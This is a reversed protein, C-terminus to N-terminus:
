NNKNIKKLVETISQSLEASGSKRLLSNYSPKAIIILVGHLCHNESLKKLQAYIRRRLKNRRVALKAVKKGVVVSVKLSSLPTTVISFHKFHHKVGKEFYESFEPKSLRQNKKFM